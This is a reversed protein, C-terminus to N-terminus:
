VTMPWNLELTSTLWGGSCDVGSTVSGLTLALQRRGCWHNGSLELLTKRYYALRLDRRRFNGGLIELSLARDGKWIRGRNVCIRVMARLQRVDEHVAHQVIRRARNVLNPDERVVVALKRPVNDIGGVSSNTWILRTQHEAEIGRTTASRRCGRPDLRGSRPPMREGSEVKARLRRAPGSTYRYTNRAVKFVYKQRGPLVLSIVSQAAYTVSIYPLTQM